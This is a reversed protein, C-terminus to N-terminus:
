EDCVIALGLFTYIVGIVHLVIAGNARDEEDFLGTPYNQLQRGAGPANPSASVGVKDGVRESTGVGADAGARLSRSAGPVPAGHQVVNYCVYGALVLLFAATRWALRMGMRRPPM